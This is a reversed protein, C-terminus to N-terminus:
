QNAHNVSKEPKSKRGYKRHKGNPPISNSSRRFTGPNDYTSGNGENFSSGEYEIVAWDPEEFHRDSRKPKLKHESKESLKIDNGNMDENFNAEKDHVEDPTEDAVVDGSQKTNEVLNGSLLLM